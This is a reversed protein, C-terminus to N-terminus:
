SSVIYDSSVNYIKGSDDIWSKNKYWIKTNDHIVGIVTKYDSHYIIKNNKIINNQKDICWPSKIKIINNKKKTPIHHKCYLNLANNKNNKGNSDFNRKLGCPKGRTNTGICTDKKFKINDTHLHNKVINKLFDIDININEKILFHTIYDLVTQSIFSNYNRSIIHDM